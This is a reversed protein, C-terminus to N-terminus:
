VAEAKNQLMGAFDANLESKAKFMSALQEKTGEDLISLLMYQGQAVERSFLGMLYKLQTENYM